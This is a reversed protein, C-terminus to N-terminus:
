RCSERFGCGRPIEALKGGTRGCKESTRLVARKERGKFKITKVVRAVTTKCVKQRNAFKSLSNEANDRKDQVDKVRGARLQATAKPVRRERGNANSASIQEPTFGKFFKQLLDQMQTRTSEGGCEAKWKAVIHDVGCKKERGM